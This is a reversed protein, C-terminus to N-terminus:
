GRFFAPVDAAPLASARTGVCVLDLRLPARDLPNQNSAPAIARLAGASSAAAWACAAAAAAVLAALSAPPSTYPTHTLKLEDRDPLLPPPHTSLLTHVCRHPSPADEKWWVECVRVCECRVMQVAAAVFLLAGVAALTSPPAPPSTGM